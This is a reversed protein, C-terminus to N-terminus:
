FHWLISEGIIAKVDINKTLTIIMLPTFITTISYDIGLVACGTLLALITIGFSKIAHRRAESGRKIRLVSDSADIKSSIAEPFKGDHENASTSHFNLLDFILLITLLSLIFFFSTAIKM